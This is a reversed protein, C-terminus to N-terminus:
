WGTTSTTTTNNFFSITGFRGFTNVVRIQVQQVAERLVERRGDAFYRVIAGNPFQHDGFKLGNRFKVRMGDSYSVEIDTLEKIDKLNINYKKCLKDLLYKASKREGKTGGRESLTKIKLLKEKM